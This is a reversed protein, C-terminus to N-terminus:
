MIERPVPWAYTIWTMGGSYRTDYTIRLTMDILTKDRRFERSAPPCIRTTVLCYAINPPCTKCPQGSVQLRRTSIISLQAPLCFAPVAEAAKVM